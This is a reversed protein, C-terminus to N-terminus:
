PKKWIKQKTLGFKLWISINQVFKILDVRLDECVSASKVLELTGKNKGIKRFIRGKYNKM